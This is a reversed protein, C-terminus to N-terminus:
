ILDFELNFIDHTPNPYTLTAQILSSEVSTFWKNTFHLGLVDGVSGAIFQGNNSFAVTHYTGLNYFYIEGRTELNYIIIKGLDQFAVALYRDDPYFAIDLIIAQEGRVTLITDGSIINQVFIILNNSSNFNLYHSAVYIGTNSSFDQMSNNIEKIKLFSLNDIIETFYRISHEDGKYDKFGFIQNALLYKGDKTLKIDM